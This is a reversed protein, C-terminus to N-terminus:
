DVDQEVEMAEVKVGNRGGKGEYVGRELKWLINEHKEEADQELFEWRSPEKYMGLADAGKPQWKDISQVTKWHEDSKFSVSLQQYLETYSSQDKEWGGNRQYGRKLLETHATAIKGADKPLPEDLDENILDHLCGEHVAIADRHKGSAAYFESLLTSMELTTKDLAGWVRRMNYIIDQLLAIASDQHGHSFRVEVLRRGIWIITSSSWHTQDDRLEWLHSLLWELDTFNHQQGLLGCIDSLEQVDLESFKVKVHRSERLCEKMITKSLDLMQERLKHDECKNRGRGALALSLKFGVRLNHQDHFGHHAETFQWVSTALEFAEQFKKQDILGYVAEAGAKCGSNVIDLNVEDRGLEQLLIIFFRRVITDSQKISSGMGKRFLALLDDEIHKAQDDYRKHKHFARLRAGRLLITEFKMNQKVAQTFLEYIITEALLDAMVVSFSIVESSKLTEEFAVLFVYSRRDVSHDLKFGCKEHSSFDKFIIQRRIASLLEHAEKVHGLAVYNGALSVAADFLKRYDTEKRVVEITCTKVTRIVVTISEKTGQRKHLHVLERLQELTSHHSYGHVSRTYEFHETLLIIAKTLTETTVTTSTLYLRALRSKSTVLTTTITTTSILSWQKSEKHITEYIIIAESRKEESREYMAALQILARLSIESYRDYLEICVDRYEISVQVLVRYEVKVKKELVYLYNHYANDVFDAKMDYEKGRKIITRWICRYVTECDSWRNTTKYLRILGFAADIADQHCTDSGKELSTYIELYYLETDKHNHKACHNGLLYLVELTLTHSIGLTAVYSQRLERGIALAKDLMGITEYFDILERAAKFVTEDGIRLSTKCSHYVYVYIHEAKDIHGQQLHCCALRLALKIAEASFGKPLSHHGHHGHGSTLTGWLNKLVGECITLVKSWQERKVFFTTLTECTTIMSIEIVTTSTIKTITLEYVEEIITETEETLTIQTEEILESIFIAVSVAEITGKHGSKKFFSWISKFISLAVTLLELKRAEEAIIKLTVAWEFTTIERHEYECWLGLLIHKAEEKRSHRILFRVYVLVIEIKRQHNETSPNHSCFHAVKHLFTIIIEEALILQKQIEYMEFLRFTADIRRRDLLKMTREAVAFMTLIHQEWNEGRFGDHLVVTLDGYVGVTESHFEGYFEVCARYIEHQIKVALTTEKISIYLKALMKKCSIIEETIRNHHHEEAKIIFLIMEERRTMVENREIITISTTCKLFASALTIAIKSFRGVITQALKSARYYFKSAEVLDSLREYTSSITMLCQLVSQHEKLISSRLNLAMLHMEVTETLFVQSDWCSWEMLAFAVSEPFHHTFDTSPKHAGHGDFMPSARFHATWYRVTYELLHHKHFHESIVRSELKDMGPEIRGAKGTLHNKVYAFCRTVLDRQAEKVPLIESQSHELVYQRISIHRFRVIDDEIVFLSGYKERVHSEIDNIKEMSKEDGVRTELLCQIEALAMPREAILIKMNSTKSCTALLREFLTKSGSEGGAVHNLGDVVIMAERESDKHLASELARWLFDELGSSQHQTQFDYGDCLLKYLTVNGVSQEFVQALIRKIINLSTAETKLDANDKPALWGKITLIDITTSHMEVSKQLHYSWLATSIQERYQYFADVRHGCLGHFDKASAGQKQKMCHVTADSIVMLMEAYAFALAHKVADNAAFSQRHRLFIPIELSMKFLVSFVAELIDSQKPGMKLLARCSGWIMRAADSSNSFMTGVADQYLSIRISFHEALRLIRDWRSGIHPVRRLRDAAIFDLISEVSGGTLDQVNTVGRLKSEYNTSVETTSKVLISIEPSSARDSGNASPKVTHHSVTRVDKPRTTDAVQQATSTVGNTHPAEGAQKGPSPVGNSLSVQSPTKSPKAPRDRSAFM